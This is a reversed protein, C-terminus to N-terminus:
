RKEEGDERARLLTFVGRGVSGGLIFRDNDNRGREGGGSDRGRRGSGIVGRDRPGGTPNRGSNGGGRDQERIEGSTVARKRDEEDRDRRQASEGIVGRADRRDGIVGKERAGGRAERDRDGSCNRDRVRDIERDRDDVDGSLDAVRNRENDRGPSYWGEVFEGSGCDRGESARYQDRGGETSDRYWDDRSSVRDGYNDGVNRRFDDGVSDRARQDNERHEENDNRQIIRWHKRGGLDRNGTARDEENDNLQAVRWRDGGSDRDRDYNTRDRQSSWWSDSGRSDRTWYCDDWDRGRDGRRSENWRDGDAFDRNWYDGSHNRDRDDRDYDDRRFERGLGSNRNSRDRYEERRDRDRDGGSVDECRYGGRFDRERSGDRSVEDRSDRYWNDERRDRDVDGGRFNRTWGSGRARDSDNNGRRFGGERDHDVDRSKKARDEIRRNDDDSGNEIDRRRHSWEERARADSRIPGDRDRERDRRERGGDGVGGREDGRTRSDREPVNSVQKRNDGRGGGARDSAAGGARDSAARDGSARDSTARNGAVVDRGGDRDRDVDKGRNSGGRERDGRSDRDGEHTNSGDHSEDDEFTDAVAAEGDCTGAGGVPLATALGPVLTGTEWHHSLLSIAANSSLRPHSLSIIPLPPKKKGDPGPRPLAAALKERFGKPFDRGGAQRLLVVVDRLGRSGGATCCDHYASLMPHVPAAAAGAAATSSSGGNATAGLQLDVIVTRSANISEAVVEEKALDAGDKRLTVCGKDVVLSSDAKQDGFGVRLASVLNRETPAARHQMKLCTVLSPYATIVEGAAFVFSLVHGSHENKSCWLQSILCRPVEYVGDKKHDDAAIDRPGGGVPVLIWFTGRRRKHGGTPQGFERKDTIGGSRHVIAWVAPMLRRFLHHGNIVDIIKSTFEAQQGLNAEVYPVEHRKCARQVVSNEEVSMDKVAGLFFILTRREGKNAGEEEAPTGHINLAQKYSEHLLVVATRSVTAYDSIIRDVHGGLALRPDPAVTQLGSAGGQELARSVVQILHYESPVPCTTVFRPQIRIAHQDEFLFVIERVAEWAQARGRWLAASAIRALADRRAVHSATPKFTEPDLNGPATLFFVLGDPGGSTSASPATSCIPTPMPKPKRLASVDASASRRGRGAAPTHAAASRSIGAVKEAWTKAPGDTKGKSALDKEAQKVQEELLARLDSEEKKLSAAVEFDEREVAQLKEDALAQLKLRLDSIALSVAQAAELQAAKKQRQEAIAAAEAAEAAAM